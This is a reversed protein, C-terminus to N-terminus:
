HRRNAGHQLNYALSSPSASVFYSKESNGAVDGGLVKTRRIDGASASGQSQVARPSDPISRGSIDSAIGHNLANPRTGALTSMPRRWAAAGSDCSLRVLERLSCSQRFGITKM